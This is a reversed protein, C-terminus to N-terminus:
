PDQDILLIDFRRQIKETRQAIDDDSLISKLIEEHEVTTEQENLFNACYNELGMFKTFGSREWNRRQDRRALEIKQVENKSIAAALLRYESLPLAEIKFTVESREDAVKNGLNLLKRLGWYEELVQNREM